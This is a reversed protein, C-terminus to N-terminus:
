GFNPGVFPALLRAMDPDNAVVRIPGWDNVGAVGESSDKRRFLKQAWMLTAQKVAPPVAPWGWKATVRVRYTDGTEWDVRRLLSTVARGRVIANDPQTDIDGAALTSYSGGAYGTEVVLGTLNGIDDVIFRDPCPIRGRTTYVRATASSDLYFRRSCHEEIDQSAVTLLRTLLSDRAVDTVTLLEKLEALSAYENTM